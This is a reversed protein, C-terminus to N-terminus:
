SDVLVFSFSFDYHRAEETFINAEIQIMTSMLHGFSKEKRCINM